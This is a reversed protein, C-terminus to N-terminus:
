ILYPGDVTFQAVYLMTDLSTNQGEFLAIDIVEDRLLANMFRARMNTVSHVKGDTSWGNPDLLKAAAIRAEKDKYLVAGKLDLPPPTTFHRRSILPPRGTFFVIVKDMVFTHIAVFRKVESCLSPQYDISSHEAHHGLFTM